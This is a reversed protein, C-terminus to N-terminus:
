CTVSEGYLVAKFLAIRDEKNLLNFRRCLATALRHRQVFHPNASVIYNRHDKRWSMFGHAAAEQYHESGEWGFGAASLESVLKAVEAERGSKVFVLFDADTDSPAPDCTVRSGCPEFDCLRAICEALGAEELSRDVEYFAAADLNM